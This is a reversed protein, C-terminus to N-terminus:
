QRFRQKHKWKSGMSWIQSSVLSLLAAECDERILEDNLNSAIICLIHADIVNMKSIMKILVRANAPGRTRLMDALVQRFSTEHQLGMNKISELVVAQIIEPESANGLIGTLM